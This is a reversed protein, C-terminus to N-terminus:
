MYSTLPHPRNKCFELSCLYVGMYDQVKNYLNNIREDENRGEADWVGYANDRKFNLDEIEKPTKFKTDFELNEVIYKKNMLKGEM